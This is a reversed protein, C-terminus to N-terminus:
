RRVQFRGLGKDTSITLSDSAEQYDLSFGVDQATLTNNLLLGLQEIVPEIKGEYDHSSDVAYYVTNLEGNM